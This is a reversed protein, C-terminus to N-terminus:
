NGRDIRFRCMCKPVIVLKTILNYVGGEGVSNETMVYQLYVLELVSKMLLSEQAFAENALYDVKLMMTTM